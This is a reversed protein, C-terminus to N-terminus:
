TDLRDPAFFRIVASAVGEALADRFNPDALRAADYPSSLHGCTVRVTPMRTLRLLDWTKAHIQCDLLDTRSTVEEQVLHAARAGLSSGTGMAPDGYFYTAVGRPQDSDLVECRLSLVLDADIDNAFSAHQADDPLGATDPARTLLVQVGIAALRGEVRAALDDTVERETLGGHGPVNGAGPDILVVKDAVGTTLGDLQSMERLTAAMGAGGMTRALREFARFTDPGCTGDSPVGVSRQFERLARDTLPGFLGDVRGLDFGLQSLRRQLVVVDDGATLHGPGFSLVRDGLCWRAEELRRFTATGVLGDVLLGRQQQFARVAADLEDDFGDRVDIRHDDDHSALFGLRTLRDRVEAVAPGHDGRRYAARGAM